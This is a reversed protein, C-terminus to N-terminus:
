EELQRSTLETDFTWRDPGIEEPKLAKGGAPTIKVQTVRVRRSKEELRYLFNSISVRSFARKADSPKIRYTKDVVGKVVQAQGPVIQVQGVSVDQEGAVQRIYFEPDRTNGLGDGDVRAQLQSLELSQAQIARVLPEALKTNQQELENLRQSWSWNLWGLVLAGIVSALIVGRPFNLNTFFSKM